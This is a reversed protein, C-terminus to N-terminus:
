GLVERRPLETGPDVEREVIERLRPLVELPDADRGVAERLLESGRRSDAAREAGLRVPTPDPASELGVVEDFPRLEALEALDGERDDPAVM